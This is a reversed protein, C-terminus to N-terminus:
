GRRESRCCCSCRMGGGSQSRSVILLLVTTAPPYLNLASLTTRRRLFWAGGMGVVAVVFTIMLDIVVSEPRLMVGGGRRRLVPNRQSPRHEVASRTSRRPDNSCSWGCRRTSAALGVASGERRIRRALKATGCVYIVAATKGAAVWSAHLALIARLRPTSKSALEVEIPLM